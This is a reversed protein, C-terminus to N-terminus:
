VYQGHQMGGCRHFLLPRRPSRVCCVSRGLVHNRIPLDRGPLVISRTRRVPARHGYRHRRHRPHGARRDASRGHRSRDSCRAGHRRTSRDPGGHRRKGADRRRCGRDHPCRALLAHLRARMRRGCVRDCRTRCVLARTRLRALPVAACGCDVRSANRPVRLWALM